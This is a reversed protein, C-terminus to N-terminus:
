LATVESREPLIRDGNMIGTVNYIEPPVTWSGEKEEAESRSVGGPAIAAFFESVTGLTRLADQNKPDYSIIDWATAVADNTRGTDNYHKLLMSRIASNGPDFSLIEQLAKEYSYIKGEAKLAYAKLYMFRLSGPFIRLAEDATNIAEDYYGAELYSYALNYYLSFSETRELGDRYIEAAELGTLGSAAGIYEEAIEESSVCSSLITIM